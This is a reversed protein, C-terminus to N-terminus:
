TRKIFKIDYGLLDAIEAVEVYKITESRLKRSLNNMSLPRNKEAYLREAIKTMTTAEQALLSKIIALIKM